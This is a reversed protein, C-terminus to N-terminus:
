FHYSIVSALGRTGTQEMRPSRAASGHLRYAEFSTNLSYKHNIEWSWNVSLATARVGGKVAHVPLFGTSQEETVGYDAQMGSRNALMVTPQLGVAHHQGLPLSLCLGLDMRLGRHDNSGGYALDSKLTIGYAVRYDLFGGVEPTFRLKTQRGEAGISTKRSLTPMMKVGYDMNSEESLHMGVVNMDVFVGNSWQASIKPVLLLGQQSSGEARPGIFAALSLYVDKSGEPMLTRASQALAPGCAALLAAALLCTKLTRGAESTLATLNLRLKQFDVDNGRLRSDM